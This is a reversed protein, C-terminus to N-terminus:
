AAGPPNPKLTRENVQGHLPCRLPGPLTPWPHQDGPTPVEIQERTLERGCESGLPDTEVKCRVVNRRDEILRYEHPGTHGIGLVCRSRPDFHGVGSGMGSTCQEPEYLPMFRQEEAAIGEHLRDEFRGLDPGIADFIRGLQDSQSGSLEVAGPPIKARSVGRSIQPGRDDADFEEETMWYGSQRLEDLLRVYLRMESLHDLADDLARHKKADAPGDTWGGFGAFRLFRRVVGIDMSWYESVAAWLGPLDRRIVAADFHGVGSGAFAVRAQEGPFSFQRAARVWKGAAKGIDNPTMTVAERQAVKVVERHLADWLGSEDHMTRVVDKAQDRLAVIGLSPHPMNVLWSRRGLEVLKADTLVIGVELVVDSSQVGTTELDVWVLMDAPPGPVM